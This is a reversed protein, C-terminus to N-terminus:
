NASTSSTVPAKFQTDVVHCSVCDTSQPHPAPPRDAAHCENCTTPKPIHSFSNVPLWGSNDDKPTHCRICDSGGGHVEGEIPAPRQSEHCSSCDNTSIFDAHRITPTLAKSDTVGPSRVLCASALLIPLLYAISKM